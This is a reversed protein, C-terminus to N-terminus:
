YTETTIEVEYTNESIKDKNLTKILHRKHYCYLYDSVSFERMDEMYAMFKWQYVESNMRQSLWKEWNNGFLEPFHCGPPNGANNIGDRLGDYYVLALISDSDKKVQATATHYEKAKAVPMAYGNIEIVSTEKGAEGNLVAGHRDYYMSDLEYGKDMQPFKLLYSRETLLTRKPRKIEFKRFDKPVPPEERGILNMYVTKDVIQLDYNFWNQIIGVFESFTMNPVARTLDVMNENEVIKTEEVNVGDSKGEIGKSSRIRLSMLEGKLSIYDRDEYEIEVEVESGAVVDRLYVSKGNFFYGNFLEKGQYKVKLKGAMPFYFDLRYNDDHELVYVRRYYAVQNYYAVYDVGGADSAYVPYEETRDYDELKLKYEKVEIWKNRFYQTGSFVWRQALNEDSLIDGALSYGADAFGVKLLYLVHPCPHIINVNDITWNNQETPFVNRAMELVGNKLITHNYYGEFADWMVTKPDYKTTHIRPFNFNTEPYKKGCIEIAYRYIDQVKFKELPLESLKKDYNPLHDFGFDIQVTMYDGEISEIDLVAEHVRGEFLLYGKMSKVLHHSEHSRYDGFQSIFDEDMYFEFPFTFKTLTKDSLRSNSEQVSIKKSSFDLVGRETFFKIEM